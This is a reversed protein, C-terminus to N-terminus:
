FHILNINKKFTNNQSLVKLKVSNRIVINRILFSERTANIDFDNKYSNSFFLVSTNKLLM